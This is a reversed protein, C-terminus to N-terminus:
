FTFINKMRRKVETKLALYEQRTIGVADRNEVARRLLYSLCDGLTGWSLCKYVEPSARQAAPSSDDRLQLLRCNLALFDDTGVMDATELVGERWAEIEPNKIETPRKEVSGKVTAPGNSSADIVIERAYTLIVGKFGMDKIRGITGTVEAANEGACFHNYFTTKLFGRLLPNKNVDLLSLRPHSPKTLASSKTSFYNYTDVVDQSHEMEETMRHWYTANLPAKQPWDHVYTMRTDYEFEWQPTTWSDSNSINAFFTQANLISFTESDVQLLRWGANLGSMPTISPAIWGATLPKMFDVLSTNRLTTGNQHVTSNALFDYYVLMQDSHTHGFFIAAITSPSYRTVISYFLATPNPLASIGIPGSPVHGIIWVRQNIDESAQLEEALFALMGTPDPNTFNYYNYINDPYQSTYWVNTNISIVKLGQPTITAYAAYHTKAYHAASSEIWGENKWLSALFSYHWSFENSQNGRLDNPTLLAQPLSDHNGLTSYLPGSLWSKFTEYATKEEYKVLARSLEDDDDHSIIDGTFITFDITSRDIFKDMEYFTSLALDAPTDCSFAGFRSAPMSANSGIDYRADLHWDSIHLVNLTNGSPQPSVTRNAPKPKFYRSEDILITPPADCVSWKYHCYAQMDGTSMSMKYFLQAMYPGMGGVNSFYDRCSNASISAKLTPIVDCLRILLNTVTDVPQTIAAIHMIEASAICKSCNSGLANGFIVSSLEAFLNDEILANKLHPLSSPLPSTENTPPVNGSGNYYLIPGGPGNPILNQQCQNSASLNNPNCEQDPQKSHAAVLYSASLLYLLNLRMTFENYFGVVIVFGIAGRSTQAEKVYFLLAYFGTLPM